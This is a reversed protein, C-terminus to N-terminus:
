NPKRYSLFKSKDPNWIYLNGELRYAEYEGLKTWHTIPEGNARCHELFTMPELNM